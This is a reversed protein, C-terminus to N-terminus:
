IYVDCDERELPLSQNEEEKTKRSNMAEGLLIRQNTIELTPSPKKLMKVKKLTDKTAKTEVTSSNIKSPSLLTNILERSDSFLLVRLLDTIESAAPSSVLLTFSLLSLKDLESIKKLEEKSWTGTSLKLLMRPNTKSKSKIYVSIHGTTEKLSM